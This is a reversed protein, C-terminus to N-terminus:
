GSRAKMTLQLLDLDIISCNEDTWSRQSSAFLVLVSATKITECFSLSVLFFHKTTWDMEFIEGILVKFSM